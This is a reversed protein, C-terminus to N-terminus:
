LNIQKKRFTLYNELIITAAIQDTIKKKKSKKTGSAIILRHALTTTLREDWLIAPIKIKNQIKKKFDACLKSKDSLTGNLNIPNGIVLMEVKLMIIQAIIKDILNNLNNEFITKVPFAFTENKDCCALGTRTTGFDIAMIIMDCIKGKVITYIKNKIKVM